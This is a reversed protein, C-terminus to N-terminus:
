TRFIIHSEERIFGEERLKCKANIYQQLKMKDAEKEENMEGSM